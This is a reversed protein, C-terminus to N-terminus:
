AWTILVLHFIQLTYHFKHEYDHNISLRKQSAISHRYSALSIKGNCTQDSPPAQPLLAYQLITLLIYPYYFRHLNYTSLMAIWFGCYGCRSNEKIKWLYRKLSTHFISSENSNGFEIIISRDNHWQPNKEHQNFVRWALNSWPDIRVIRRLLGM